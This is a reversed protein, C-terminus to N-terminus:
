PDTGLHLKQDISAPLPDAFYPIMLPLVSKIMLFGPMFLLTGFAGFVFSLRPVRDEMRYALILIVLTAALGAVPLVSVLEGAAKTKIYVYRLSQKWDDRLSVVLLVAVAHYVLAFHFFFM